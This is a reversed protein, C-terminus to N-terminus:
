STTTILTAISKNHNYTRVEAKNVWLNLFLRLAAAHFVRRSRSQSLGPCGPFPQDCSTRDDGERRSGPFAYIVLEEPRLRM